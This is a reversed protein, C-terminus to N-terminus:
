NVKFEIAGGKDGKPCLRTVDFSYSSKDSKVVELTFTRQHVGRTVENWPTAGLNKLGTFEFLTNNIDSSCSRCSSNVIVSVVLKDGTKYETKKNEIIDFTFNCAALNNASFILLGFVLVSLFTTNNKPM